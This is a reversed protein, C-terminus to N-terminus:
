GRGIEDMLVRFSELRAPLIRGDQVAAPVACGEDGAHRCDRFRCQAAAAFVEPFFAELAELTPRHLQFSRVGPTDIVAGGFPFRYLTSASTTHRGKGTWDQVDQTRLDLGGLRNLLSSKGVGSQGVFVALKGTLVGRLADLGEGTTASVALAPFALGEYARLLEAAEAEAELLDVKNLVLVPDIGGQAFSLLYRDVLRPKFPPDAATSVIVGLDVNAAIVHEQHGRRVRTLHSRRPRVETLVHPPPGSVLYGVEDGVVVASASAHPIRTSKRLVVPVVDGGGAPEVGIESARISVVRGHRVDGALETESAEDPPLERNDPGRLIKERIPGHDDHDEDIRRTRGKPQAARGV